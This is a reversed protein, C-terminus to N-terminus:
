KELDIVCQNSICKISDPRPMICEILMNGTDCKENKSIVGCGCKFECDDNSNCSKDCYKINRGGGASEPGCKPIFLYGLTLLIVFAVIVIIILKKKKM